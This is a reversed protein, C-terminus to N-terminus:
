LKNIQTMSQVLLVFACVNQQTITSVKTSMKIQEADRAMNEKIETEFSAAKESSSVFLFLEM